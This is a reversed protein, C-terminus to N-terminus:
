PEPGPSVLALVRDHHADVNWTSCSGAEVQQGPRAVEFPHRRAGKLRWGLEVHFVFMRGGAAWAASSRLPAQTCGHHGEVNWTSCSCAEAQLGPQAVEFPHRRADTIRMWTGRPVRVPRRRSDLSCWKSPTGAHMRSPGGREVHFVFLDGGAERSAGCSPRVRVRQSSDTRTGRPVRVPGGGADRAEGCRHPRGGHLGDVNWTSCALDGCGDEHKM